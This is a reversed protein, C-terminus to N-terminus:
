SHSVAFSCKRQFLQLIASTDQLLEHGISQWRSEKVQLSLYVGSNIYTRVSKSVSWRGRLLISELASPNSVYDATAAGHRMCHPTFHYSELGCATCAAHFLKRYEGATLGFLKKKSTLPEGSSRVLEEVMQTVLESRVTVSQMPGTKTHSLGIVMGTFASGFHQSGPLGVDCIRINCLESVRLYCDYALLTAAAAHVHGGQLMSMALVTTLEKTLPLRHRKMEEQKKSWGKLVLMTNLLKGKCHPLHFHIGHLLNSAQYHKGDHVYLEEMYEAIWQDLELVGADSNWAHESSDMWGEAQAYTLFQHLASTYAHHTRQTLVNAKLSM